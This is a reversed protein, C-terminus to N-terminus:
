VAALGHQRRRSRGVGLRRNGRLVGGYERALSQQGSSCWARAPEGTVLSLPATGNCTTMTEKGVVLVTMLVMM